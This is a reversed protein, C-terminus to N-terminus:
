KKGLDFMWKVFTIYFFPLILIFYRPFPAQIGLYFLYIISISSFLLETNILKKRFIKISKIFSVFFTIPWLWSWQDTRVISYNGWWSKYFGGLFLTLSSFPINTMSHEKWYKLLKMQFFFINFFGNRNIFAKLYTLSFVIFGILLQQFVTKLKVKKKILNYGNLVIVFFPVAGWFKASAFLGLFLGQLWFNDKKYLVFFLYTLLFCAQGMEFSADGSLMIFLPDFILLLSTVAAIKTSRFLKFALVYTLLLYLICFFIELHFPNKTLLITLGYLYKVFPTHQFHYETPDAGKIYLYGAAIHLDGDSLFLRRCPPEYTIDQSCFYKKILSTNFRYSFVHPQFFYITILYIVIILFFYFFHKPLTRNKVPIM